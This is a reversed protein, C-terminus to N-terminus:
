RDTDLSKFIHSALKVRRTSLMRDFPVVPKGAAQSAAEFLRANTNTRNVYTTDLHLIKRLGRHHFANLKSTLSKTLHIRELGYLLRSRILADYILLQWKRNASSDRWFVHLKLRTPKVDQIRQVVEHRINVIQNLNNGLYSAEQAKPLLVGDSFIINAPAQMHLVCCKSRNLQLGYQKSYLEVHKLLENLARASTSFTYHRGRLFFQTSILNHFGQTRSM